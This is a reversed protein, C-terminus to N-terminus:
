RTCKFTLQRLINAGERRERERRMEGRGREYEEELKENRQKNQPRKHIKEEKPHNADRQHNSYRAGCTVYADRISSVAQQDADSVKACYRLKSDGLLETADGKKATAGM